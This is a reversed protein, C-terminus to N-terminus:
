EAQVAGGGTSVATSGSVCVVFTISLVSLVEGKQPGPSGAGGNGCEYLVKFVARGGGVGM